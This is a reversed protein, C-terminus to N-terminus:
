RRCTVYDKQRQTQIQALDPYFIYHNYAVKEAWTKSINANSNLLATKVQYSITFINNRAGWWSKSHRNFGVQIRLGTPKLQILHIVYSVNRLASWTYPSTPLHQYILGREGQCWLASFESANIPPLSAHSCCADPPKGHHILLALLSPPFFSYLGSKFITCWPSQPCFTVRLYFSRAYLAYWM